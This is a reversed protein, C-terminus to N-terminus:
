VLALTVAPGTAGDFGLDFVTALAAPSAVGEAIVEVGIAHAMTTLGRLFVQNAANTEVDYVFPADVKIYDIGVDRLEGIRAVQHGMHEIGVRCGLPRLLACLLRFQAFRRFVAYEPVELLLRGRVDDAASIRAATARLWGEELSQASLNVCLDSADTRLRELALGVVREDLRRGLELRMLWPLFEGATLWESRGAPQLRAVCEQHLLARTVAIVPYDELRVEGADLAPELQARWYALLGTSDPSTASMQATMVTGGQEASLTLAADVRALLAQLLEGHRYEVAGTAFELDDLGLELAISRIIEQVRQGLELAAHLGPALLGIESGNLRGVIWDLDAREEELPNMSHLGEALHRILTDVVPWGHKRNLSQLECLRVLVLVGSAGAENGDLLARCRALFHERNLLGSLADYHTDVRLRELRRAQEDLMREVRGSLANMARVVRGLETTRPVQSVIFRRGAIAEAQEVVQDLPRLIFRLLVTGAIGTLVAAALFWGSLRVVGNWLEARAYGVQSSLTLTGFQHWGDQVQAVGPPVEIPMLRTFWTPADVVAGEPRREVIVEGATGVLEILEYHGTDFQASVLLEVTVPDKPMQSLTAGLANANDLNKVLLQERLYERASVASIIASGGFAILAVLAIALWLQRILSM